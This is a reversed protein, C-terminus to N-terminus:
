NKWCLQSADPGLTQKIWRDFAKVRVYHTPNNMGGCEGLSGRGGSVAGLVVFRGDPGEKFVPGGSDGRCTGASRVYTGSGPLFEQKHGIKRGSQVYRGDRGRTWHQYKLTELHGICLIEPMVKPRVTLSARLFKNCMDDELIDVNRVQRLVSQNPETAKNLFCDKSCFGWTKDNYLAGMRSADLEVRCWGESTDLPSFEPYCYTDKRRGESLIVENYGSPVSNPTNPQAFFQRCMSEQPPPRNKECRSESACYHFKSAGYGDTMCPERLYKGFGALQVMGTGPFAKGVGADKYTPLPLCAPTFEAAQTLHILTIDYGGFAGYSGKGQYTQHHRVFFDIEIKQGDKHLAQNAVDAIGLFALGRPQIPYVRLDKPPHQVCKVARFGIKYQGQSQSAALCRGIHEAPVVKLICHAASLVWRSTILSGTCSTFTGIGNLNYGVLFDLQKIDARSAGVLRNGSSASRRTSNQDDEPREYSDVEEEYEYDYYDDDAV